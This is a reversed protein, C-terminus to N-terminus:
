GREFEVMVPGPPVALEPVTDPDEIVVIGFEVTM